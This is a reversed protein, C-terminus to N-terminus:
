PAVEGLLEHAQAAIRAANGDWTWGHELLARRGAAGLRPGLARDAVLRLLRDALAGEDGPRFLLANEGDSVLERLNPQDPALTPVGAALADFLKLPSAYENIAPILAADLACVHPPLLDPPVAGLAHVRAALGRQAAMAVLGPLAPGQGILVLHVSQLGPRGIIELVLDLRHWPRMYGVFGLAFAADPLQWRARV